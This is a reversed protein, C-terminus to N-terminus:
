PSRRCLSCFISRLLGLATLLNCLYLVYWMSLVKEKMEPTGRQQVIRRISSIRPPLLLGFTSYTVARLPKGEDLEIYTRGTGVRFRKKLLEKLPRAPHKIVAEPAYVLLFGSKTAKATWQVDGGSKVGEPFMGIAEFLSAKVFLNATTSIKQEKICFEHRMHITSDYQEAITKRRSYIFEIQGGVLDASETVLVKVGEKVWQPTAICDSDCFVLIANKANRIGENRAAYSSQITNEELLKVPYRKVITKTKDTSNNDVIIIELLEKPYDLHLLSEILTAINKEANYAPVIISVTPITNIDEIPMELGSDGKTLGANAVISEVDKQLLDQTVM